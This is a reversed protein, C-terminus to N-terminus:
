AIRKMLVGRLMADPNYMIIRDDQSKYDIRVAADKALKMLAAAVSSGAQLGPVDYSAGYTTGGDEKSYTTKLKDPHFHVAGDASFSMIADIADFLGKPCDEIEPTPTNLIEDVNGPWEGESLQTAMWGGGEFHFTVSRGETWGFGILKQSASAVAKAFAQPINLGPPLDNGHWYELMLNGNCGVVTNARLLLTAEVLREAEDKALKLVAKFGEKIRDDIPAILNDVMVPPMADPPMCPVVVKLKGGAGTISLRGGDLASMSLSAGAKLLATRLHGIHPCLNLDEEIPYAARMTHDTAVVWNNIFRVHHMFAFNSKVDTSSKVFELAELLKSAAKPESKPARPNRRKPKEPESEPVSFGDGSITM